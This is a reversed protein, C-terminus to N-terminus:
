VVFHVGVAGLNYFQSNLKATWSSTPAHNTYITSGFMYHTDGMYLGRYEAFINFNPNIDFTLGAKVQAAFTVGKDHTNGNYHNVNAELPALQLSDANSISTIASGIGLGLYPKYMSQWPNMNLLANVLFVGSEQPYRVFFDHEPLRSTNNFLHGKFKNKGIYFGELEFAPTIGWASTFDTWEFGLHGGVFGVTESRVKGFANVALPGGESELFFATGYQSVHLNNSAGAGGFVGVYINGPSVMQGMTGAFGPSALLLGLAPILPKIKLSIGNLKM